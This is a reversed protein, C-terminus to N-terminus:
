RQFWTSDKKFVPCLIVSGINTDNVKYYLYINWIDIFTFDSTPFQAKSCEDSELWFEVFCLDILVIVAQFM